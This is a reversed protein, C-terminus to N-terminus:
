GIRVAYIASDKSNGSANFVIKGSTSTIDNASIRVNGSPNTIFGSLSIMGNSSASINIRGSSIVTTGDWLKAQVNAAGATDAVTIQGVVFWIGTSLSVSPGDFYSGTNSLAVDAGLVNSGTSMTPVTWSADGRWYTTAGASTGSGLNTVPLNGTVDNALRVTLTNSAGNITKNTLTDTTARGVLTDTSTPLTLTGTNTITSIVPATLTPTVITPSTARVAASSATGTITGWSVDYNSASNKILPQGQTGGTPISNFTISGGATLSQIDEYRVPEDATIPAPLNLIRNSNMDLNAAMTNPATGDRSLTNEMATEVATNNANIANVATTENQLNSLDTLTLKAM